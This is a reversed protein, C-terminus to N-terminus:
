SKSGKKFVGEKPGGFTRRVQMPGFMMKWVPSNESQCVASVPEDRVKDIFCAKPFICSAALDLIIAECLALM